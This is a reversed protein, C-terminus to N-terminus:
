QVYTCYSQGTSQLVPVTDLFHLVLAEFHQFGDQCNSLNLEEQRENDMQQSFILRNDQIVADAIYLSYVLKKQHIDYVYLPSSEPVGNGFFFLHSTTRATLNTFGNFSINSVKKLNPHYITIESTENEEDYEDVVKLGDKFLFADYNHTVSTSVPAESGRLMPHSGSLNKNFFEKTLITDMEFLKEEYKNGNFAYPEWVEGKQLTVKKLINRGNNLVKFAGESNKVPLTLGSEFSDSWNAKGTPFIKAYKIQEDEINIAHLVEYFEYGSTKGITKIICLANTPQFLLASFLSSDTLKRMTITSHNKFLMFNQFSGMSGGMRTDWSLVVFKGNNTQSIEIGPKSTIFSELQEPTNIGMIGERIKQNLTGAKKGFDEDDAKLKKLSGVWHVISDSPNKIEQITRHVSSHSQKQSNPKKQNTECSTIILLLLSSVWQFTRFM